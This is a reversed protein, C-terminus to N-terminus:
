ATGRINKAEGSFQMITARKHFYMFKNVLVCLSIIIVITYTLTVLYYLRLFSLISAYIHIGYYIACQKHITATLTSVVRM